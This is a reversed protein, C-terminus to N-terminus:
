NRSRERDAIERVQEELTKMNRVVPIIPHEPLYFTDFALSETKRAFTMTDISTETIFGLIGIKM